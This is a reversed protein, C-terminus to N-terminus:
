LGKFYEIDDNDSDNEGDEDANSDTELDDLGGVDSVDLWLEPNDSEYPM